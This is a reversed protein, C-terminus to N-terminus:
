VWPNINLQMDPAALYSHFLGDPDYRARLAELRQWNIPSLFRAPRATFDSDALFLGETLPELRRMQRALWNRCRQDDSQDKWVVYSAFYLDAQLSLAMDPLQRQPAMGFWLSFSEPTPLTTFADRLVPLLEDTGANSWMNDVAYRYGAPNARQQEEYELALTTPQAVARVLAHDVVPCTEFPALAAVAEAHTDAFTLGHIVLAPGSYEIEPPLPVTAGVAVVEVSPALTPHIEHLWRMVEDFYDLTYVYTSQAMAQPLQCVRLHFRTVIGFYGPGAGRAAWLLDTNQTEDARVLEGAATVVDIAAIRECAWGWGRCNWGMGGQLLFGGLGVTPCHGGPFMLGHEALFQNLEGGRTSPSVRVLSADADLTMEHMGALDILLADDRVSWGAWSHGGSRVSVKLGSRRALQVGLIVDEESEAKLIAVPYREPKRANFVPEVREREYGADGRWSLRDQFTSMFNGKRSM